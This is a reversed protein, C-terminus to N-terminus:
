REPVTSTTYAITCYFAFANTNKQTVLNDGASAVLPFGGFNYFVNQDDLLAIRIVSTTGFKLIVNGASGQNSLQIWHIFLREPSTVTIITQDSTGATLDTFTILEFNPFDLANHPDLSTRTSDIVVAM